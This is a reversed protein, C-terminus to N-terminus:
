VWCLCGICYSYYLLTVGVTIRVLLGDAIPETDQSIPTVLNVSLVTGAEGQFPALDLCCNDRTGRQAGGQPFAARLRDQSPDPRRQLASM